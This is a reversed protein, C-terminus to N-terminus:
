PSSPATSRRSSTRRGGRHRVPHAVRPLRDGAERREARRARAALERVDHRAAGAEILPHVCATSPRPPSAPGGTASTTPTRGPSSPARLGRERRSRPSRTTSSPRATTAATAATRATARARSSTPRSRRPPAIGIARAVDRAGDLEGTALAPSVATVALAQRRPRTRRARRRAVLRRRRLVRRRLERALSGHTELEARTTMPRGSPAARAGRGLGAQVSRGTSRAVAACDDHEPAVNVVRGDLLGVKVRVTGGDVEVARIRASSSTATSARVRVGLREDASCSARSRPRRMRAPRPRSVVFGPRGKKM